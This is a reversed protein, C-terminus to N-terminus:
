KKLYRKLRSLVRSPLGKFTKYMGSLKYGMKLCMYYGRDPLKKEEIANRLRKVEYRYLPALTERNTFHLFKGVDKVEVGNMKVYSLRGNCIDADVSKCCPIFALLHDPEEVPRMNNMPMAIGMSVEDYSGGNRLDKLEDYNALVDMCDDYLKELSKSKRVFLVGAHIWVKYDIKDKYRGIGDVDYM